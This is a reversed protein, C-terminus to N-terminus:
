LTQFELYEINRYELFRNIMIKRFTAKIAKPYSKGQKSMQESIHDDFIGYFATEDM